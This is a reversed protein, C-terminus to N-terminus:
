AEWVSMDESAADAPSYDDSWFCMWDRRNDWVYSHAEEKSMGSRSVFNAELELLWADFSLKTEAAVM